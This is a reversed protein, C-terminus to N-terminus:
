NTGSDPDLGPGRAEVPEGVAGLLRVEFRGATTSSSDRGAFSDATEVRATAAAPVVRRVPAM